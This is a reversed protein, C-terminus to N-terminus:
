ASCSRLSAVIERQAYKLQTARGTMEVESPGAAHLREASFERLGCPLHVCLQPGEVGRWHNQQFVFREPAGSLIVTALHITIEFRSLGQRGRGLASASANIPCLQSKDHHLCHALGGMQVAAGSSCMGELKDGSLESKLSTGLLLSPSSNMGFIISRLS